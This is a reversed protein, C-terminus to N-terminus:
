LKRWNVVITMLYSIDVVDYLVEHVVITNGYQFNVKRFYQDLFHKHLRKEEDGKIRIKLYDLLLIHISYVDSDLNQDFISVALSKKALKTMINDVEINNMDWYTM